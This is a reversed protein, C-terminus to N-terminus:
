LNYVVDCEECGNEALINLCRLCCWSVTVSKLLLFDIGFMEQNLLLHLM